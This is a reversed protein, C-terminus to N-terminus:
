EGAADKPHGDTQGNDYMGTVGIIDGNDDRDFRLRFYAAEELGFLDEALPVLAMKPRNERQYFLQGNELMIKRPGFRGAYQEFKGPDLIMPNNLAELSIMAWEIGAKRRPNEVSEALHKLAELHAVNLAQPVPVEIHPKIGTGEWNTNTYPNIARGVSIRAYMAQGFGFQNVPHAAGATTEGVITARKMNKLNYTFEEAASATNGSTLVYVEQTPMRKGRVWPLTYWHTMSDTPRDYFSNFHLRDGEFLYSMILQIMSPNGGGNQRLDFIIADTNALFAMAAEATPGAFEAPEFSRLDLYGINGTLREVREFGFNNQRMDDLFLESQIDVTSDTLNEAELRQQLEPNFRISLHLDPTISNIDSMFAASLEMPSEIKDYAGESNRKRLLEAIKQGTDPFVYFREYLSALSDALKVITPKDLRPIEMAAGPAQAVASTSLLALM